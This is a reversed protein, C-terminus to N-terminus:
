EFVLDFAALRNKQFHFASLYCNDSDRLALNVRLKGDLWFDRLWRLGRLRQESRGFQTLVFWLTQHQMVLVRGHAARTMADVFYDFKGADSFGSSNWQSNLREVDDREMDSTDFFVGPESLQIRKTEMTYCVFRGKDVFGYKELVQIRQPDFVCCALVRTFLSALATQHAEMSFIGPDTVQRAQWHNAVFWQLLVDCEPHLNHCLSILAASDIACRPDLDVLERFLNQAQKLQAEHFIEARLEDLSADKREVHAVHQQRPSSMSCPVTEDISAIGNLEGNHKQREEHETQSFLQSFGDDDNDDDDHADEDENDETGDPTAEENDYTRLADDSEM